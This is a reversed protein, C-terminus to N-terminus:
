TPAIGFEVERKKRLENEPVLKAAVRSVFKIPFIFMRTQLQWKAKAARRVEWIIRFSVTKIKQSGKSPLLQIRARYYEWVLM